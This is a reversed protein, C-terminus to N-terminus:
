QGVPTWGLKAAFVRRLPTDIQLPARRIYEEAVLRQEHPRAGLYELAEQDTPARQTPPNGFESPPLGTWVVADLGLYRGWNGIARTIPDPATPGAGPAGTSDVPTGAATAAAWNKIDHAKDKGIGERLRLAECAAALDDVSFLAWLTRVREQQGPVIVLTLRGKSSKRAFEIPLLPGDEFWKARVPLGKPNWILSGWGICGIIM